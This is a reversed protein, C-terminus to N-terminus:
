VWKIIFNGCKCKEDTLPFDKVRRIEIGENCKMCRIDLPVNNKTAKRLDVKYGSSKMIERVARWTRKTRKPLEIKVIINEM